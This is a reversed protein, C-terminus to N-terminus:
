PRTLAQVQAVVTAVDIAKLCRNDTCAAFAKGDYCPACPLALGPALTVSRANDARLMTTPSTPGFLGVVPAGSLNALHLPGSDHAVVAACRRYLAVLGPLSTAGILDIVGGHARLAPRVWDDSAAGTLAVACGRSLLAEAVAAYRDLPWRRLPDDRGPNKAGGPALAILPRGDAPLREAIGPDLDVDVRPVPFRRANGDDIGTVLRVYEDGIYRGAIVGPRGDQAGLWRREGATIRAVLIKYRPDSHAVLALDFRRGSLKARTAMVARVQQPKTGALVAFEDVVALEDIGEVHRLLPEVTRGCLWTIRVDPNAARLAAVMPLALVVDGIAAIKVILATSIM